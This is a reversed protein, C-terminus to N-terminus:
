DYDGDLDTYGSEVLFRALRNFGRQSVKGTREGVLKAHEGGNYRVSGDSKIVVRFAPCTGFCPTRELGIETVVPARGKVGDAIRPADPHSREEATQKRHLDEIEGGRAVSSCALLGGPGIGVRKM